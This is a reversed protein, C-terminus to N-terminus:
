RAPAVGSALWSRLLSRYAQDWAQYEARLAAGPWDAPLLDAPLLPDAQFHRLVDASLVFGPALAAASGAQLEGLSAALASRLEAAAASWATLGFLSAVEVASDLRGVAVVCQESVAPPPHWALNDPRLWVGERLEALRVLRMADRLSGREGAARRPGVVFAFRWAQGRWARTRAHRSADQRAQRELLRGALRYRGDAAVVEGAALMRSLAVRLAGESIGFLEGARVLVRASLVPPHTGLLTSLVVSRATLPAKRDQSV